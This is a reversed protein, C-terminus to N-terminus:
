KLHLAKKINLITKCVNSIIFDILFSICNSYAEKVEASFTLVVKGKTYMSAILHNFEFELEYLYKNEKEKGKDMKLKFKNQITLKGSRSM